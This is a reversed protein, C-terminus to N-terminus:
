EKTSENGGGKKALTYNTVLFGIGIAILCVGKLVLGIHSSFIKILVYANLIFIYRRASNLKEHKLGLVVKSIALALIFINFLVPFIMSYDFSIGEETFLFVLIIIGFTSLTFFDLKKHIDTYKRYSIIYIGLTLTTLLILPLNFSDMFDFGYFDYPLVSIFFAFFYLTIKSIKKYTSDIETIAFIFILLMSLIFKNEMDLSIPVWLSWLMFFLLLTKCSQKNKYRIIYYPLLLLVLFIYASNTFSSTILVGVLSFIALYYADLLYIVPLMLLLTILLMSSLSYSLQYAQYILALAALFSVGLALALSQIWIESAKTKHKRYLMVQIILLPILAVISKIERSFMSWNFAFISILGGGIFVVALLAFILLMRNKSKVETDQSLINKEILDFQTEKIYGLDTLKKLEQRLEDAKM